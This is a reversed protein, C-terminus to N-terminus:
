QPRLLIKGRQQIDKDYLELANKVMTFDLVDGIKPTFIDHHQKLFQEIALKEQRSQKDWWRELLFGELVKNKFIPQTVDIGTAPVGTLGGYCIHLSNEPMLNFLAGTHLGGLADFCVTARNSHIFKTFNSEFTKKEALNINNRSKMENELILMMDKNDVINVCEIGRLACLQNIMRGVQSTAATNIVCKAGYNFAIDVLAYATLPNIFGCAAKELDPNNDLIIARRFSGVVFQAWCGEAACCVFRGLLHEYEPSGVKLIQASCESGAIYPTKVDPVHGKLKM